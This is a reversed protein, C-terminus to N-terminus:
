GILRQIYFQGRGSRNFQATQVNLTWARPLRGLDLIRGFAQEQGNCSGRLKFVRYAGARIKLGAITTTADISLPAGGCRTGNPFSRGGGSPSTAPKVRFNVTSSRTFRGTQGNVRWPRPLVGDFDQLFSAFLKSAAPCTLGKVTVSYPGAPLSLAGISDDHLVQFTSPCLGTTGGGGGGGGGTGTFAVSFARGGNAVFQGSAFDYVWTGPLVGDFDELFRTFRSSATACSLVAPNAVTITYAGARLSLTGITDNHLVQFTGPCAAPPAQTQANATPTLALAGVAVALILLPKLRAM